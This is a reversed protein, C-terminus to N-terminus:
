SQGEVFAFVSEQLVEPQRERRTDPIVPGLRITITQGHRHVVAGDFKGSIGESSVSVARDTEVIRPEDPLGSIAIRAVGNFLPHAGAAYTVSSRGIVEITGKQNGLTLLRGHLVEDPALLQVNLPDFSQPFLPTGSADVIVTWGPRELVSRKQEARRAHLDRGDGFAREAISARQDASLGCLFHHSAHHELATVLLEDLSVKDTATLSSRWSPSFRDLLVALATGTDYARRRIEEPRFEKAPLVDEAGEGTARHEVYRALGENLETQREYSVSGAPLMAFRKERFVLTVRAWCAAEEIEVAALAHRMAESEMRRLTLLDSDDAPYTFLEVENAVWVPHNKRQWVHFAEHVLTAASARVTASPPPEILTATWVGGIEVASNATVQPHRGAFRWVGAEGSETFGEPPEPHRFLWTSEGDWIAVPIERPDFGPWLDRKALRDMEAVIALPTSGTALQTEPAPPASPITRCGSVLLALLVFTSYTRM